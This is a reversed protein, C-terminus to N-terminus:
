MREQPAPPQPKPSFKPLLLSDMPWGERIRKYLLARTLGSIKSWERVSHTEGNITVPIQILAASRMDPTFAKYPPAFLDDGQYGADVRQLLTAVGVGKLRAWESISHTEGNITLEHLYSKRCNHDGRYITGLPQIIEEGVFGHEVRKRITAAPVGCERSWESATKTVGNITIRVNQTTNNMQTFYDAWRCNSPEYDGWVDIRDLTLSDDYGNALAWEMFPEFTQWEECVKIGKGAWNPEYKCRKKMAQYCKYLRTKSMGHTKNAQGAKRASERMQCGCSTVVGSRLKYSSTIKEGGCDCVCRWMRGPRDPTNRNGKSYLYEVVTLKGFRQGVLDCGKGM